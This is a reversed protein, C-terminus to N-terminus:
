EGKKLSKMYEAQDNTLPICDHINWSCYDGLIETPTVKRVTDVIHSNPPVITFKDGIKLM